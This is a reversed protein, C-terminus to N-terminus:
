LRRRPRKRLAWLQMLSLVFTASLLAVSVPQLFAKSGMAFFTAHIAVTLLGLLPLLRYYGLSSSTGAVVQGQAYLVLAIIPLNLLLNLQNGGPLHFLEWEHWFAADIQHVVLVTANLLFLWQLRPALRM